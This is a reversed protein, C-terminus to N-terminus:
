APLLSVGASRGSIRHTVSSKRLEPNRKLSNINDITSACLIEWLLLLPQIDCIIVLRTLVDRLASSFPIVAAPARITTPM